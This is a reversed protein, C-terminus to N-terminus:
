SPSRSETENSGHDDEIEQEGHKEPMVTSDLYRLVVKTPKTGPPMKFTYKGDLRDRIRQQVKDWRAQEDDKYRLIARPDAGPLSKFESESMFEREPGRSTRALKVWNYTAKETDYPLGHASMWKEVWEHCLRNWRPFKIDYYDKSIQSFLTDDDYREVIMYCLDIADMIAWNIDAPSFLEPITHAANGILVAAMSLGGSFVDTAVQSRMMRVSNLNWKQSVGSKKCVEYAAAFPAPLPQLSDLEGAVMKDLKYDVRPTDRENTRRGFFAHYDQNSTTLRSYWLNMHVKGLSKRNTTLSLRTHGIRMSTIGNRNLFKEFDSRYQEASVVVTMAYTVAPWVYFNHTPRVALHVILTLSSTPQNARGASFTGDAGVLLSGELIKITEGVLYRSTVTSELCSIGDRELRFGYNVRVQRRLLQMFVETNISHDHRKADDRSAPPDLAFQKLLSKYNPFRLFERLPRLLQSSLISVHNRRPGSHLDHRHSECIEFPIGANKLGIALILGAPGAGNIIIPQRVTTRHTPTTRAFDFNADPFASISPLLKGNYFRVSSISRHPLRSPPKINIYNM